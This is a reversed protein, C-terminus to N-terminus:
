LRNLNLANLNNLPLENDIQSNLTEIQLKIGTLLNKENEYKKTNLDIEQSKKEKDDKLSNIQNQINEIRSNKTQIQSICDQINSKINEAESKLDSIRIELEDIEQNKKFADLNLSNLTRRYNDINIQIAGKRERKKKLEDEINERCKECTVNLLKSELRSIENEVRDLEV